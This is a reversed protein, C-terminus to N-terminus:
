AGKLYWKGNKGRFSLSTVVRWEIDATSPANVVECRGTSTGRVDKGVVTPPNATLSTCNATPGSVNWYMDGGGSYDPPSMEQTLASLEKLWALTLASSEILDNYAEMTRYEEVVDPTDQAYVPTLGAYPLLLFALALGLLGYKSVTKMNCEGLVDFSKSLNDYWMSTISEVSKM